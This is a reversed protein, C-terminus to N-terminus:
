FEGYKTEKYGIIATQCIRKIAFIATIAIMLKIVLKAVKQM